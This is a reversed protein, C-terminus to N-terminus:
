DIESVDTKGRKLWKKATAICEQFAVSLDLVAMFHFTRKAEGIVSM